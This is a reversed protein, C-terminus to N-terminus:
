QGKWRRRAVLVMKGSRIDLALQCGKRRRGKACLSIENLGTSRRLMRKGGGVVLRLGGRERRGSKMLLFHQGEWRRRRILVM